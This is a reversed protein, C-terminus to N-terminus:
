ARCMYGHVNLSYCEIRRQAYRNHVVVCQINNESHGGIYTDHM